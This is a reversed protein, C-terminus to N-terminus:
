GIVMKVLLSLGSDLGWLLLAFALILILVMITTQTTEQRNPWVVRRLETRAERALNWVRQGRETQLAAFGATLGLAVLALARYLLPWDGFYWNGAVGVVVLCMVVIWKLWDVIVGSEWTASAHM